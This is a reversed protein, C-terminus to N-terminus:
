PSLINYKVFIFFTVDIINKCYMWCKFNKNKKVAENLFEEGSVIALYVVIKGGKSSSLAQLSLLKSNMM